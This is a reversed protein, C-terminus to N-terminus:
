FGLVASSSVIFLHEWMGATLAMNPRPTPIAKALM